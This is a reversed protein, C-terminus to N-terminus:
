LLDLRNHQKALRTFAKDLKDDWDFDMAVDFLIADNKNNDKIMKTLEFFAVYGAETNRYDLARQATRAELNTIGYCKVAKPNYYKKQTAM